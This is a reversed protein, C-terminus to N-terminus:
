ESNVRDIDIKYLGGIRDWLPVSYPTTIVGTARSIEITSGACLSHASTTAIIPASFPNQCRKSAGFDDIHIVTRAVTRKCHQARRRGCVRRHAKNRQGAIKALLCGQAGSQAVGAASGDDEHVGIKLMRRFQDGLQYGSPPCAGLDDCGPSAIVLGGERRQLPKRGAEKIPQEIRHAVRANRGAAGIEHQEVTRDDINNSSSSINRRPKTRQSPKGITSIGNRRPCRRCPLVFYVSRRM